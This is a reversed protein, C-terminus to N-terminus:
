QTMKQSLSNFEKKVSEYKAKGSQGARVYEQEEQELRLTYDDMLENGLTLLIEELNQLFDQYYDPIRYLYHLKPFQEARREVLGIEMMQKLHKEVAPRSIEMFETIQDASLTNESLKVVLRRRKSDRLISLLIDVFPTFVLDKLM